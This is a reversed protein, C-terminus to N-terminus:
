LIFWNNSSVELPADEKKITLACLPGPVRTRGAFLTLRFKNREYLRRAGISKEKRVRAVRRVHPRAPRDYM